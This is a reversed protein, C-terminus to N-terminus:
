EVLIRYFFAGTGTANTDTFFTTGAQGLINTAIKTFPPSAGLNTSREISYNRTTVSAWGIQASSPFVELSVIHFFSSPDVPSTGAVWEQWNNVGDGDPDASDSSIDTPLYYDWLWTLYDNTYAGQFEYAGIDVKPGVIRPRGDLDTPGPALANNGADICPSNSQLHFNGPFDYDDIFLPENTINGSGALLSSSCCNTFTGGNATDDGGADAVNYYIISNNANVDNLGGGYGGGLAPSTPAYNGYVTCQSISGGYAGGGFLGLNDIITCNTAQCYYLGGAYYDSTNWIVECHDLIGSDVGAGGIHAVCNTILCHFFSGSQAGGGGYAACNIIVCNSLVASTSECYAGGGLDSLNLYSTAHVSGNTLTFGILTVGNTLYACRVSSLSWPFSGPLSYGEIVTAEPGNISRVTVPKNIVVRCPTDDNNTRSGTNYLGNTVLILDGPSSADIADQINTAAAPWNTYPPAPSLNNLNIYRTTALAPAALCLFHALALLLCGSKM